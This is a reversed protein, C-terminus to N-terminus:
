SFFQIHSNDFLVLAGMGILGFGLPRVIHKGWRTMREAAMAASLAVMVPLASMGVAFSLAMLAWCCGVCSRAYAGTVISAEQWPPRIGRWHQLAFGRPTRCARLCAHKLKSFQFGGATILTLGVVFSSTRDTLGVTDIVGHLADDAAVMAIGAISWVGVFSASAVGILVNPHPRRAVLTRVVRLMPLTSPLMMAIIMVTWGTLVRLPAFANTGLVSHDFQGQYRFLAGWSITACLLVAVVLPEAAVSRDEEREM